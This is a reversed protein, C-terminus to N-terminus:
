YHFSGPTSRALSDLADLDYTITDSAATQRLRAHIAALSRAAGTDPPIAAEAQALWDGLTLWERLEARCDPCSTTHREVAAREGPNLQDAAYHPLLTRIASCTQTDM